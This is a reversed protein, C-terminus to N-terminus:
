PGSCACSAALDSAYQPRAARERVNSILKPLTRTTAVNSLKRALWGGPDTWVQYTLLTSGEGCEQVTWSGRSEEINGSGEVYVWSSRGSAPPGEDWSNQLRVRYYLGAPFGLKQYNVPSGDADVDVCSEKVYPMFEAFHCNDTIVRYVRRAPQELVAVAIGEKIKSDATEKLVFAEGPDECTVREGAPLEVPPPAQDASAEPALLRVSALLCLLVAKAVPRAHGSSNTLAPMKAIPRPM